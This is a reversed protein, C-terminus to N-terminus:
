LYCNSACSPCRKSTSHRAEPNKRAMVNFPENLINGIYGEKFNGCSYTDATPEVLIAEGKQFACSGKRQGTELWHILFDAYTAPILRSQRLQNFKMVLAEREAPQLEFQDRAGRSEVGIDSVAALTFNLGLKLHKAYALVEDIAFYNHHGVTMNLGLDFSRYLGLLEKLNKITQD